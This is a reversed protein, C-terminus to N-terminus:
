DVSYVYDFTGSIRVSPSGGHIVLYSEDPVVMTKGPNFKGSFFPIPSNLGSTLNPASALRIISDKPRCGNRIIQLTVNRSFGSDNYYVPFWSSKNEFKLVKCPVRKVVIQAQAQGAVLTLAMIALAMRCLKM